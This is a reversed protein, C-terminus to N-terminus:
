PLDLRFRVTGHQDVVAVRGYGNRPVRVLLCPATIMQPVMAGPAPEIWDIRIVLTGDTVSAATQALDLDYGGTPKEGMAMRLVAFRSFDVDMRVPGNGSGTPKRNREAALEADTGIWALGASAAKGGCVSSSSLRKLSVTKAADPPGASTPACGWAPMLCLVLAWKAFLHM